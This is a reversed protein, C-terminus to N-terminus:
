TLREVDAPRSRYFMSAVTSKDWTSPARSGHKKLREEKDLCARALRLFGAGERELMRQDHFQVQFKLGVLFETILDINDDFAEEFTQGHDETMPVFRNDEDFDEDGGDSREDDDDDGGEAGAVGAGEENVGSEDLIKL